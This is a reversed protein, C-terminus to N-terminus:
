ERQPQGRTKIWECWAAHAEALRAWAADDEPDPVEASELLAGCYACREADGGIADLLFGTKQTREM